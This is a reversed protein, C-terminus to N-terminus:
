KKAVMLFPNIKIRTREKTREPQPRTFVDWDGVAEVVGAVGDGVGEITGVELGFALQVPRFM